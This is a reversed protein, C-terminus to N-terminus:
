LGEKFLRFSQSSVLVDGASVYARGNIQNM